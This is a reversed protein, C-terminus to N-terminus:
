SDLHVPSLIGYGDKEPMVTKPTAGSLRGNRIDPIRDSIMKVLRIDSILISVAYTVEELWNQFHM